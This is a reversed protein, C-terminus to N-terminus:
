NFIGPFLGNAITRIGDGARVAPAYIDGLMIPYVRNNRVARLSGLAPDNLLKGLQIEKVKEGGAEPRPMYEVFIVEPDAKILDEKGIFREPSLMPSAGLQTVIDGALELCYNRIGSDYFGLVAVSPVSGQAGAAAKTKEVDAKMRQVLGQAKEEVKFIRGINLLDAYEHELLRSGGRRTNTNIYTGTGKANWQETGGIVTDSFLSGWTFIFDPEMLFVTEKDPAFASDVYGMRSFGAKWEDKVPNDLGYSAIVRDELGLAIMTEICGQYVVLAKEPAKEFVQTYEDGNFNYNVISVPYYADQSPAKAEPSPVQRKGASFAGSLSLVLSFIVTCIIKM